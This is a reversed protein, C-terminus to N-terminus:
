FYLLKCENGQSIKYNLTDNASHFTLQRRYSSVKNSSNRKNNVVSSLSSKRTKRTSKNFNSKVISIDKTPSNIKNILMLEQYNLGYKKIIEFCVKNVRGEKVREIYDLESLLYTHSICGIASFNILMSKNNRILPFISKIDSSCIDDNNGYFRKEIQNPNIRTFLDTEFNKDTIIKVKKEANPYMAYYVNKLVNLSFSLKFVYILHLRGKYHGQMVSMISRIDSPISSFVSMNELNLIINWTEVQGPILLEKIVYNCVFLIANTWDNESYANKHNTFENINFVIIPRYDSDRGHVYIIGSNLIDKIVGTAPNDFIFSYDNLFDTNRKLLEIAESLNFSVAHLFRLKDGESIKSHIIVRNLMLQSNLQSLMDIELPLYSSSDEFIKRQIKTETLELFLNPGEPFYLYAEKPPLNFDDFVSPLIGHEM